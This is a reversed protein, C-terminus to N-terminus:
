VKKRPRWGRPWKPPVVEESTLHEVYEQPDDYVKGDLISEVPHGPWTKMVHSYNKRRRQDESLSPEACLYPEAYLDPAENFISDAKDVLLWILGRRYEHSEKRWNYVSQRTVGAKDAVLAVPKESPWPERGWDKVGGLEVELAAWQADTLQPKHEPEPPGMGFAVDLSEASGNLYNSIALRAFQALDPSLTQRRSDSPEASRQEDEYEALQQAFRRLKEQM